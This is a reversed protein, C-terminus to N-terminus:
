CGRLRVLFTFHDGPESVSSRVAVIAAVLKEVISRQDLSHRPSAELALHGADSPVVEGPLFLQLCRRRFHRTKFNFMERHPGM